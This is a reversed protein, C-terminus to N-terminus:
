TDGDKYIGPEVGEINKEDVTISMPHTFDLGYYRAMLHRAQSRTGAYVQEVYNAPVYLSYGDVHELVEKHDAVVWYLNSM